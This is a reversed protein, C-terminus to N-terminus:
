GKSQKQGGLRPHQALYRGPGTSQQKLGGGSVSDLGEYKAQVLRKQEQGTGGQVLIDGQKKPERNSSRGLPSVDARGRNCGTGRSGM